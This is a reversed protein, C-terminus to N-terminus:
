GSPSRPGARARAPLGGGEGRGPSLLLERLATDLAQPLDDVQSFAEPDAYLGFSLRDDHSFIGILQGHGEAIPVVPHRPRGPSVRFSASWAVHMHANATEVRLFSGDIASLREAM